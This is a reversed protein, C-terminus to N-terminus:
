VVRFQVVEWLPLFGVEFASSVVSDHVLGDSSTSSGAFSNGGGEM